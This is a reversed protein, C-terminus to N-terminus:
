RRPTIPELPPDAPEPAARADLDEVADLRARVEAAERVFAALDASIAAHLHLAIEPFEGLMRAFMPLRVLFLETDRDATATFAYRIQTVLSAPTLLTGEGVLIPGRLDAAELRLAGAVVVYTGESQGGAEFLVDGAAIAVREGSFALLRLQEDTMPSFLDVRRLVAIDSALSM